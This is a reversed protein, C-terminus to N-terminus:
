REDIFKLVYDVFSPYKDELSKVLDLADFYEKVGSECNKFYDDKNYEKLLFLRKVIPNWKDTPSSIENSQKIDEIIKKLNKM